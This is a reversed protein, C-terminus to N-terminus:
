NVGGSDDRGYYPRLIEKVRLRGRNIRSKVTGEPLDLIESIEEYTLEQIDRLVLPTKFKEPLKEVAQRVLDGAEKREMDLDPQTREDRIDVRVKSEEDREAMGELSYTKFKRRRLENRCLNLAITYLWTSFKSIQRYRAASKYARLFTEQAVDEALERDGLVQYAVNVMRSSYRRVLEDFANRDGQGAKLMLQEDSEDRGGPRNGTIRTM